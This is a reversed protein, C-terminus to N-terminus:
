PQIIVRYFRPSATPTNTDSWVYPNTTLTFNTLTTWNNSTTLGDASQISYDHATPGSLEVTGPASSQLWVIPDSQVIAKGSGVGVFTGNGFCIDGFQCAAANTAWSSGTRSYTMVNLGGGAVFHGNGYAIVAPRLIPLVGQQVWNSADSSTFVRNGIDIEMFKGGGFGITYLNNATGSSRVFWNTGDMSVVNTGPKGM